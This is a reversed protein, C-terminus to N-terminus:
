TRWALSLGIVAAETAVVLLGLKGSPLRLAACVARTGREERFKLQWKAVISTDTDGAVDLPVIELRSNRLISIAVVASHTVILAYIGLPPVVLYTISWCTLIIAETSYLPLPESLNREALISTIVSTALLLLVAGWGWLGVYGLRQLISVSLALLQLLTAAIAPEFSGTRKGLRLGAVQAIVFVIAVSTLRPVWTADFLAMQVATFGYILIATQWDDKWLPM